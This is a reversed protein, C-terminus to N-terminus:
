NRKKVSIINSNINEKHMNSKIYMVIADYLKNFLMDIDIAEYIGTIIKQLIESGSTSDTYISIGWKKLNEKCYQWILTFIELLFDDRDTSHKMLKKVIKFLKTLSDATIHMSSMERLLPKFDIISMIPKIVEPYNSVCLKSLLDCLVKTLQDVISDDAYNCTGFSDNQDIGIYIGQQILRTVHEIPDLLLMGNVKLNGREVSWTISGKTSGVINGAGDLIRSGRTVSRDSLLEQRHRIRRIEEANESIKSVNSEAAKRVFRNYKKRLRKVNLNNKYDNMVRGKTSKIIDSAFQINVVSGYFFMIHTALNLADVISVTKETVYKDYMCYGQHIIGVGNLVLYGGQVTNFAVKTFANVAKGRAAANSIIASGRILGFSFASGFLPIYHALAEKNLIHISEKHSRRDALQQSNRALSWLGTVGAGLGLSGSVAAVPALPTFLSAIYLGVTGVGVIGSTVDMATCLVSKWSCAPSDMIELWVTSYEETPFYAPNPQYLGDKPLVMTCKPLTNKKKYDTWDKYVRGSLDIYWTEYQSTNEQKATTKTKFKKQVNKRITFIPIITPINISLLKEEDEKTRETNAKKKAEEKIEEKKPQVNIKPRFTVNYIVGCYILQSDDTEVAYACIKDYIKDIVNKATEYDVTDTVETNSPNETNYFCSRETESADKTSKPSGYIAYGINQRLYKREDSKYIICEPLSEYFHQQWEVATANMKEWFIDTVEETTAM